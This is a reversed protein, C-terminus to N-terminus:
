QSRPSVIRLEAEARQIAEDIPEDCDTFLRIDLRKRGNRGGEVAGERM